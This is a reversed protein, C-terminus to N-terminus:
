LRLIEKIRLVNISMMIKTFSTCTYKKFVAFVFNSNIGTLNM